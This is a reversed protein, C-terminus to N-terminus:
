RLSVESSLIAGPVLRAVQTPRPGCAGFAQRAPLDFTVEGRSLGMARTAYQAASEMDHTSVVVAGGGNAHEHFRESPVSGLELSEALAALHPAIRAWDDLAAQLTPALFSADAFRTLDRSVVALSGDRTCNKLTALKM